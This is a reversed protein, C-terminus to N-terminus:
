PDTKPFHITAFYHVFVPIKIRLLDLPHTVLMFILLLHMIKYCNKLVFNYMCLM